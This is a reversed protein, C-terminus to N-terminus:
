LKEYECIRNLKLIKKEILSHLYVILKTEPINFIESLDESNFSKKGLLKLIQDEVSRSVKFEGILERLEEIKEELEKFDRDQIEKLKNIQYREEKITTEREIKESVASRIFQSLNSYKNERVFKKWEEKEEESIKIQVTASKRQINDSNKM